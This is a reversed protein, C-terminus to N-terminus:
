VNGGIKLAGRFSFLLITGGEKNGFTFPTIITLVSSLNKKKKKKKTTPYLRMEKRTPVCTTTKELLKSFAFSVVAADM